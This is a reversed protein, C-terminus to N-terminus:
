SDDPAGFPIEVTPPIFRQAGAPTQFDRIIGEPTMGSPIQSETTPPRPSLLVLHCEVESPPITSAQPAESMSDRAPSARPRTNRASPSAAQTGRTKDM